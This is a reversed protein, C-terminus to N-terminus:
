RQNEDTSGDQHTLVVTLPQNPAFNAIDKVTVKDGEKIKSYDSPDAFTLALVGQKELQDRSNSCIVKDDGLRGWIGQACRQMSEAVAKVMTTTVLSLGLKGRPKTTEPLRM